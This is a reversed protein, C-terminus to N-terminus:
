TITPITTPDSYTFAQSSDTISGFSIKVTQDGLSSCAPVLFNVLINTSSVIIANTGCIKITIQTPDWPFGHGNLAVAYGGNNGGGSPTVSTVTLAVPSVTM